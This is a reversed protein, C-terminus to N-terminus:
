YHDIFSQVPDPQSPGETFMPVTETKSCSTCPYECAWLSKTKRPTCGVTCGSCTVTGGSLSASTLYIIGGENFVQFAIKFDNNKSAGILLYNVSGSENEKVINISYSTLEYNFRNERMYEKWYNKVKSIDSLQFQQEILVGVKLKTQALIPLSFLALLITIISKRM